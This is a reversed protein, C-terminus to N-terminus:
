QRTSISRRQVALVVADVTRDNLLDDYDLYYKVHYKEVYKRIREEEKDGLAVLQSGLIKNFAPVQAQGGVFGAGVVAVGVKKESM